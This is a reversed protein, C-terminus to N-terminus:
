GKTEKSAATSADGVEDRGLVVEDEGGPDGHTDRRGQSTIGLVINEVDSLAYGWSRLATLYAIADPDPHRWTEKSTANESAALAIALLATPTRTPNHEIMATIPHTKGWEPRTLGLLEAALRHQDNIESAFRGRGTIVSRAIYALADKPATKRSLFTALWARRVKEASEWAKNNAILERREAKQEDTWPLSPTGDAKRKKLGCDRWGTVFHGVEIGRWTTRVAFRHGTEGLYNDETLATGDEFTLTSFPLTDKDDYAPWPIQEFDREEYDAVARAIAAAEDRADRLRQATHEFQEQNTRATDRLRTVADPDDDFEAITLAQDFTVEHTAIEKIATENGAIALGTKVRHPKEGVARAIATPTMGDLELQQWAAVREADDLEARHENAILQRVIRLSETDNEPVVYAPIEYREADIAALIRRQGDEVRIRGDASPHALVPVIVGYRKISAVFPRDIKINTRVNADIIVERADVLQLTVQETVPAEAGSPQDTIATTIDSM